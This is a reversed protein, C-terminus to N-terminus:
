RLLRDIERQIEKSKIEAADLPIGTKMGPRTHGTASLWTDKTIAQREEVLQLVDLGNSFSGFAADADQYTAIQTMGLYALLPRTMIWHGSKNPHVGDAAYKFDPDLLRKDEMYKKMPGHVDVVLWDKTYRNSILWESYIDLLNAYAAGKREDYVPPTLHIITAGANEVEEHLWNIGNKYAQFREDDFPLYIGDNMGYSAFVLDPQTQELVRALREHLDPRPFKGDAHGEESLGSVTESPLGVNIIEFKREPDSLALAAEIYSVYQGAYTISNGLFLIRHVSDPLTYSHQAYTSVTSVFCCLTYLCTNIIRM